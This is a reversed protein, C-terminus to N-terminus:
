CSLYRNVEWETVTKATMEVYDYWEARKVDLYEAAYQSGLAQCIVDDKELADLAEGLNEPVLELGDAHGQAATLKFLNGNCPPGPNLGRRIGDMGAALIATSALYPNCSSDAARYEFRGPAPVRLMMTRNNGGYAIFLPAWTAGSRPTRAGFRKYSNVSPSTIATLAKAHQLVGAMFSLALTSLGQVGNKDLFLNDRQDPDWLSIHMHGGNGTLNAFPKPMFTAHMGREQALAKVMFKFFAVRDATTLADSFRWNIEFQGNADEHDNQYVGFGLDNLYTIVTTLFEANRLLALQGYCPKSLDDSSDAVALTGDPKKDVLFFEPEIGLMFKFGAGSADRMARGLIARPCYTWDQGDMQLNGAVWALGPKWALPFVSSDAQPVCSLDPDHPGQGVGDVAFGAFGAAGQAVDKWCEAPVLKARSAGHLDVFSMLFFRIDMEQFLTETEALTPM